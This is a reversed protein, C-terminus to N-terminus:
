NLLKIAIIIIMIVILLALIGFVLYRSLRAKKKPVMEKLLEKELDIANENYFSNQEKKMNIIKIDEDKFDYIISFEEDILITGELLNTLSQEAKQLESENVLQKAVEKKKQFFITKKKM